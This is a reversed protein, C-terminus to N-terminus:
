ARTSLEAMEYCILWDKRLMDPNARFEEDCPLLYDHKLVDDDIEIEANFNEVTLEWNSSMLLDLVLM